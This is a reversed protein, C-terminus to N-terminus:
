RREHFNTDQSACNRKAGRSKPARRLPERLHGQGDHFYISDGLKAFSEAMSGTCCWFDRSRRAFSNCARRCPVYYLKNGDSPHKFGLIGNYYAREYYDAARPDATWCFLQRTLKQM